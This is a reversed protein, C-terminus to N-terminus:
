EAALQKEGNTIWLKLDEYLRGFDASIETQQNAQLKSKLVDLDIPSTETIWVTNPPYRALMTRLCVGVGHKIYTDPESEWANILITILGLISSQYWEFYPRCVAMHILGEALFRRVQFPWDSNWGDILSQPVESMGQGTLLREYHTHFTSAADVQTATNSSKLGQDIIFVAAVPGIRDAVLMQYLMTLSLELQGLQALAFLVGARQELSVEAGAETSLLRVASIAAEMKLRNESELQLDANRESDLTLRREAQANLTANQQDISMRIIVGFAGVLSTFFGGVLAIASAVVKSSAETGTFDFLGLQWLSVAFIAFIVLSGAIIGIAKELKM